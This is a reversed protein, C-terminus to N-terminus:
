AGTRRAARALCYGTLTIAAGIALDTALAQVYVLDWQANWAALAILAATLCVAVTIYVIGAIQILHGIKVQWRDTDARGSLFRWALSVIGVGLVGGVLPSLYLLDSLLAGSASSVADLPGIIEPLVHQAFALWLPTGAFGGLTGGLIDFVSRWGEHGRVKATVVGVLAGGLLM